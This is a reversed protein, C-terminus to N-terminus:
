YPWGVSCDSLVCFNYNVGGSYTYYESRAFELSSYWGHPNAATDKDSHVHIGYGTNNAYIPGGSDGGTSDFDVEFQYDINRCDTGVCSPRTVNKYVVNGCTQGGTGLGSRCVFLGVGQAAHSGVSALTRILGGGAHFPNKPTPVAGSTLDIIGADADAGIAWTESRSTGVTYITTTGHKFTQGSGGNIEICHGATLIGYISTGPRKVIFGSTCPYQNAIKYIHIGGKAKEPLWCNQYTCADAVSPEDPEVRIANGFEAVLAATMNSTLGEVGVVVKNAPTDLGTSILPIGQARLAERRAEIEAQVALLKAETYPAAAILFATAGPLRARIAEAQGAPDTFLFVPVGGEQQDLYFGASTPQSSAYRAADELSQQVGIRRRIEDGEAITLPIGFEQDPYSFSDNAAAVITAPDAAFRFTTRLRLADQSAAADALAVATRAGFSSVGAMIAIVSLTVVMVRALSMARM